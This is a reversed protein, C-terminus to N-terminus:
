DVTRMHTHASSTNCAMLIVLPPPAMCWLFMRSMDRKTVLSFPPPTSLSTLFQQERELRDLLVIRSNTYNHPSLLPPPSKGSGAGPYIFFNEKQRKSRGRSTSCFNTWRGVSKGLRFISPPHFSHWDQKISTSAAAAVGAGGWVVKTYIPKLFLCLLLPFPFPYRSPAAKNYSMRYIQSVM